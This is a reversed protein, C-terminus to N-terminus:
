YIWSRQWCSVWSCHELHKWGEPTVRAATATVTLSFCHIQAHVLHTVSENAIDRCVWYLRTSLVLSIKFCDYQKLPSGPGNCIVNPLQHIKSSLIYQVLQAKKDKWTNRFHSKWFPVFVPSAHIDPYHYLM